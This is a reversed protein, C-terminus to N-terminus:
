VYRRILNPNLKLCEKLLFKSFYKHYIKDLFKNEELLYEEYSARAKKLNEDM